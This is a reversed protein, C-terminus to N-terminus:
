KNYKYKIRSGGWPNNRGDPSRPSPTPAAPQPTPAAPQPTAPTAPQSAAPQSAAPPSRPSPTAPQSAAAATSATAAATSARSTTTVPGQWWSVVNSFLSSSSVPVASSRHLGSPSNGPSFDAASNPPKAIRLGSNVQPPLPPDGRQGELRERRKRDEEDEPDSQSNKLMEPVPRALVPAIHGLIRGVDSLPNISAIRLATQEYGELYGRMVPDKVVRFTGTEVLPGEGYTKEKHRKNEVDQIESAALM